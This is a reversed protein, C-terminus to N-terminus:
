QKGADAYGLDDPYAYWSPVYGTGLHCRWPEVAAVWAHSVWIERKIYGM